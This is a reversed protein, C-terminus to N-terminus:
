PLHRVVLLTLDDELQRGGAFDLAAGLASFLTRNASSGNAARVAEALREVGFEEDGRGRSEVVGDSYAVLTDGRELRVRGCSYSAERLVGLVPGGERLHEVTGGRRLLLAAHQGANCYELEATHPDLRALFLAVMPDPAAPGSPRFNCLERNISEAATALSGQETTYIRILGILHAVWLGASIGKGAIDGLTLGTRSGLDFLKLFDGSLHRVAFMEGAIEFAGRRAERPACLKRHVQVAEFLADRLEKQERRLVAIEAQLAADGSEARRNAPRKTNNTSTAKAPGPL